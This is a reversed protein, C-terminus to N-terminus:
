NTFLLQLHGHGSITLGTTAVTGSVHIREIEEMNLDQFVNSLLGVFTTKGSLEISKQALISGQHFAKLIVTDSQDSTNFLAFGKWTIRDSLHAPFMFDQTSEPQQNLLFEAAGGETSVYKQRVILSESLEIIGSEAEQNLADLNYVTQYGPAIHLTERHV